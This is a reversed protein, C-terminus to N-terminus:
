CLGKTKRHLLAMMTGSQTTKLIPVENLWQGCFWNNSQVQQLASPLIPKWRLLELFSWPRTLTIPPSLDYKCGTKKHTHSTTLIFFGQDVNCGDPYSITCYENTFGLQFYHHDHWNTSQENAMQIKYKINHDQMVPGKSHWWKCPGFKINQPM